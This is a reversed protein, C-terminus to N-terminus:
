IRKMEWDQNLAPAVQAELRWFRMNKSKVRTAGGFVGMTAEEM